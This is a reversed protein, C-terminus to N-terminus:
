NRREEDYFAMDWNHAGVTKSYQSNPSVISLLQGKGHVTRTALDIGGSPVVRYIHSMFTGQHRLLKKEHGIAEGM